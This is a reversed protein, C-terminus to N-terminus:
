ASPTRTAEAAEAAEAAVAEKEEDVADTQIAADKTINKAYTPDVRVRSYLDNVLRHRSLAPVVSSGDVPRNDVENAIIRRAQKLKAQLGEFAEDPSDVKLDAPLALAELQPVMRGIGGPVALRAAGYTRANLAQIRSVDRMVKAYEDLLEVRNAVKEFGLTKIHVWADHRNILGCQRVVANAGSALHRLLMAFDAGALTLAGRMVPRPAVRVLERADHALLLGASQVLQAKNAYDCFGRGETRLYELVTITQEAGHEAALSWAQNRALYDIAADHDERDMLGRANGIPLTLLDRVVTRNLGRLYGLEAPSMCILTMVRNARQDVEVGELWENMHAMKLLAVADRSNTLRLLGFAKNEAILEYAALAEDEGDALSAKIMGFPLTMVQGLVDAPLKALSVFDEQDFERSLEVAIAKIQAKNDADIRCLEHTAIFDLAARVRANDYREGLERSAWNPIKRKLQGIVSRPM